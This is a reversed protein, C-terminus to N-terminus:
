ASKLFIFTLSLFYLAIQQLCCLQYTVSSPDSGLDYFSSSVSGDPKQSYTVPTKSVQNKGPLACMRERMGWRIRKVYAYIRVKYVNDWKIKQSLKCLLNKWEWKVSFSIIRGLGWWGPVAPLCPATLHGSLLVPCYVGEGPSTKRWKEKERRITGLHHCIYRNECSVAPLALYNLISKLFINSSFM